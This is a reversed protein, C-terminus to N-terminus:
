GGNYNTSFKLDFGPDPIKPEKGGGVYVKVAPRSAEQYLFDYPSQIFTITQSFYFLYAWVVCLLITHAEGCPHPKPKAPVNHAM